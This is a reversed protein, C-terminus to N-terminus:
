NINTKLVELIRDTKKKAEQEIFAANKDDLVRLWQRVATLIKGENIKNKALSKEVEQAVKKGGGVFKEKKESSMKEFIQGYGDFLIDSVKELPTTEKATEKKEKSSDKEPYSSEQPAQYVEKEKETKPKTKPEYKKEPQQSIYKEKGQEKKM